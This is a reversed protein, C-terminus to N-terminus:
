LEYCGISMPIIIQRREVTMTPLEFISSVFNDVGKLGDYSM